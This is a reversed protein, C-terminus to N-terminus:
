EEDLGLVSVDQQLLNESVRLLTEDDIANLQEESIQGTALLLQRLIRPDTLAATYTSQGTEEDAIIGSDEVVEYTDQVGDLLPSGGILSETTTSNITSSTNTNIGPAEIDQQCDDGQPCLPDLGKEIEVKDEIGDSDTDELYPSTNYINLEDWDLLGDYDTDLNKLRGEIDNVMGEEEYVTFDIAFPNYITNRLQLFGLGIVLIAFIFLLVFGTKQEKSLNMKKPSNDM